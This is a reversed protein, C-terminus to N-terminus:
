QFILRMMCCGGEWNIRYIIYQEGSDYRKILPEPLSFEDNKDKTLHYERVEKEGEHCYEEVLTFETVTNGRVDLKVQFEGPTDITAYTIEDPNVPETRTSFWEMPVNVWTGDQNVGLWVKLIKDIKWRWQLNDDILYSLTTKDDASVELKYIANQEDEPILHWIGKVTDRQSATPEVYEFKGIRTGDITLTNDFQDLSVVPDEEPLEGHEAAVIRYDAGFPQAKSFAGIDSLGGLLASAGIYAPIVLWLFIVLWFRRGRELYIGHEWILLLGAIAMVSAGLTAVGGLLDVFQAALYIGWGTLSKRFDEASMGFLKHRLHWLVPLMVFGVVRMALGVWVLGWYGVLSGFPLLLISLEFGINWYRRPLQATQETHKRMNEDEKLLEDLSVDYLDSLKMVSGIDPYTKGKEWNAVTQRTVGLREALQEQSLEKSLRKERLKQGIDM